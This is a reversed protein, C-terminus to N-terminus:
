KKANEEKQMACRTVQGKVRNFANWEFVEPLKSDLHNMTRYYLSM